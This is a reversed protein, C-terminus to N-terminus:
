LTIQLAIDQETGSVIPSIGRHGSLLHVGVQSLASISPFQPQLNRIVGAILNWHRKISAHLKEQDSLDPLPELAEVLGTQLIEAQEKSAEAPSILCCQGAEYSSFHSDGISPHSLGLRLKLQGGVETRYTFMWGTDVNKNTILNSLGMQAGLNQREERIIRIIDNTNGEGMKEFRKEVAALLPCYGAGTILGVGTRHVKEKDDQYAIQAGFLYSTMRTDAALM